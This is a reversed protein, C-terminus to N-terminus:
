ASPRQTPSTAHRFITLLIKYGARISGSLTGTVKSQGVRRRYRVPVEEIRLGQRAAKVQMEVTWGYDIDAMALQALARRGIARFPGLDTYAVGYIARILWTALANGLRAQPLLAGPEREGLVRSGIVMDARGAAIPAVLGPLDEPYDSFDGDLFVVIETEAPLHAIGTLCARGYGRLAERQVTAGAARARAATADSSGNDVVIVADAADVPIAAVVKAIAAEENLAPIIVAVPPRVPHPPARDAM